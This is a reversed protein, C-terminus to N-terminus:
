QKKLRFDTHCSKCTEGVKGFAAQLDAASAGDDAVAALQEARESLDNALMTFDEWEEWIKPLAESPDHLSGEPFLDPIDGAHAAITQASATLSGTDLESKGSVMGAISKMHQATEKMLEMRKKVVGSAGQHALAATALAILCAAVSLKMRM